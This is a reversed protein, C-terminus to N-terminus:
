CFIAMLVPVFLLAPLMNAIKIKTVGIMNLGIALIMLSGACIIENVIPGSLIPQLVGALLVIAGQYIFIPISSFAVGIGMTVTFMSASIFDLISKTFLTEYDGQLGAQLSGYIAMAGICFTLTGMVFGEAINTKASNKAFKDQVSNALKTIKEDIDIFTGLATGIVMAVIVIITNEGDLAGDIGIYVVCLGIANMVASSIKEPIGKKFLLGLLSGVIIALANVIVGLM